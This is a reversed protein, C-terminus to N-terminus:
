KDTLLISGKNKATPQSNIQLGNRRRQAMIRRPQLTGSIKKAGGLVRKRWALREANSRLSSYMNKYSDYHSPVSSYIEKWTAGPNAARYEDVRRQVDQAVGIGLRNPVGGVITEDWRELRRIMDNRYNNNSTLQRYPLLEIIPGDTVIWLGIKHKVCWNIGEKRPPSGVVALVYDARITLRKLQHRLKENLSVKAELALVKGNLIAAADIPRNDTRIECGVRWGKSRLRAVAKACIPAELLNM